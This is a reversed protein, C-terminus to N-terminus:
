RFPWFWELPDARSSRSVAFHATRERRIDCLKAWGDGMCPISAVVRLLCGGITLCAKLVIEAATSSSGARDAIGRASFSCWLISSRM